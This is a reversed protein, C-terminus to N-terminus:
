RQTCWNSIFTTSITPARHLWSSKHRTGTDPKTSRGVWRGSHTGLDWEGPTNNAANMTIWFQPSFCKSDQLRSLETLLVVSRSSSPRPDIAPLTTHKEGGREYHNHPGGLTRAMSCPFCLLQSFCATSQETCHLAATIFEYLQAELM